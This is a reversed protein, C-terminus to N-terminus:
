SVDVIVFGTPASPADFDFPSQLVAMNSENGADDVKSLGLNYLADGMPFGPFEDPIMLDLKPMPVEHYQSNYDVPTPDQSVYVRHAVVDPETPADWKLQKKIVKSM